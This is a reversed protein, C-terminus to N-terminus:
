SSLLRIEGSISISYFVYLLTYSFCCFPSKKNVKQKNSRKQHKVLLTVFLNHRSNRNSAVESGPFPGSGGTGSRGEIRLAGPVTSRELSFM